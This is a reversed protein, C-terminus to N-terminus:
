RWTEWRSTGTRCAHPPSPWHRSPRPPTWRRSSRGPAAAAPSCPWRTRRRARLGPSASVRPPLGPSGALADLANGQGADLEAARPRDLGLPDPKGHEIGLALDARAVVVSVVLLAWNRAAIPRARCVGRNSTAPLRSTTLGAAGSGNLSAMATASCFRGSMMEKRRCIALARLPMSTSRVFARGM